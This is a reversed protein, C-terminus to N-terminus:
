VDSNSGDDAGVIGSFVAGLFGGIAGIIGLKLSPSPRDFSHKGENCYYANTIAGPEQLRYNCSGCIPCTAM